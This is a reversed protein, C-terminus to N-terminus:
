TFYCNLLTHVHVINNYWTFCESIRQKRSKKRNKSCLTVVDDFIHQQMTTQDPHCCTEQVSSPEEKHSNGAALWSSSSSYLDRYVSLWQFIWDIYSDSKRKKKEGFFFSLWPLSESLTCSFFLYNTHSKSPHITGDFCFDHLYTYDQSWWFLNKNLLSSKYQNNLWFDKYLRSGLIQESFLSIPTHMGAPVFLLSIICLVAQLGCSNRLLHKTM